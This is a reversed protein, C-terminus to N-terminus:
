GAQLLFFQDQDSWIPILINLRCIKEISYFVSFTERVKPCNLISEQSHPFLVLASMHPVNDITGRHLRFPFQSIFMVETDSFMESNLMQQWLILQSANTMQFSESACLGGSKNSGQYSKIISFRGLSSESSHSKKKNNNKNPNPSNWCKLM